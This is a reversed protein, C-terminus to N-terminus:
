NVERDNPEARVTFGDLAHDKKIKAAEDRAQELTAYKGIRVYYWAAEDKPGRIVVAVELGKKRLEEARQSANEHVKFAGVQVSFPTDASIETETGTEAAAPKSEPVAKATEEVADTATETAAPAKIAESPKAVPAAANDELAPAEPVAPADAIERIEPASISPKDAKADSPAVQNANETADDLADDVASTADEAVTGADDALAATRTAILDGVPDSSNESIEPESAPSTTEPSPKTVVVPEEPATALMEVPAKDQSTSLPADNSDMFLGAGVLMGAFFLVLGLMGAGTVLGLLTKRDMDAIRANFNQLDRSHPRGQGSGDSGDRGYIFAPLPADKQESEAESDQEPSATLDPKNTQDEGVM